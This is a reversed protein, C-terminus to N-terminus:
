AKLPFKTTHSFSVIYYQAYFSYIYQLWYSELNHTHMDTYIPSGQHSLPLSDVQWHLLWPNLVQTWFIGQLLFHCGTGTNKGLFDWPCLLSTPQLGHPQLLAPCSETVLCCCNDFVSHGQMVAYDSFVREYLFLCFLTHFPAPIEQNESECQGKREKKVM